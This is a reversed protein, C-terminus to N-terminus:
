DCPKKLAAAGQKYGDLAASCAAEMNNKEWNECASLAAAQGQAVVKCCKAAKKCTDSAKSKKPKDEEEEAEEDESDKSSSSSSGFIGNFSGFVYLLIAATPVTTIFVMFLIFPLASKYNPQAVGMVPQAFGQPAMGPAGYGQQGMPQPGGWGGQQQMQPQQMQPQMGQPTVGAMAMNAPNKPDIRLEIMAGPQVSAIQLESVLQEFNAVYPAGMQPHVEVTFVLKLHRHGMVAVSGGTTGLQLIRGRAPMGTRLLTDTKAQGRMLGGVIVAVLVIPLLASFVIILTMDPM